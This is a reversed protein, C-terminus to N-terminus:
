ARTKGDSNAPWIVIDSAHLQRPGVGLLLKRTRIIIDRISSANHGHSLTNMVQLLLDEDEVWLALELSLRNLEEKYDLLQKADLVSEPTKGYKIWRALLQAIKEAKETRNLSRRYTEFNRDYEHKISERIRAAFWTQSLFVVLTMAAASAFFQYLYTM